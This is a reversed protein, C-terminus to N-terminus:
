DQRVNYEHKLAKLSRQDIGLVAMIEEDSEASFLVAAGEGSRIARGLNMISERRTVTREGM